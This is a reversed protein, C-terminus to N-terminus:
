ERELVVVGMLILVGGFVTTATIPEAFLAAGLAVTVPPEVTSVIGARSAGIHKLGVFLAVVPVATAFVAICLLIAWASPEMPIALEGTTAGILVFSIGAAPLVHATLVIPDVTVLMARSITIYFAYALAAGLVVLVGVFSAGAPDAGVVLAVGGLALCLAVLMSPTLREGIAVVALVVVFAPYTYLVIAVLGATMFELGLFYLGSQTAYGVAGLGFAILLARGRLIRVRGRLALFTWVCFAAVVFRVALVTPISLDARQAYIGFIGLTGFGVASVFVLAIGFRDSDFRDGGVYGSMRHSGDVEWYWNDDDAALPDPRVRRFEFRM